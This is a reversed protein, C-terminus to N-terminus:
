VLRSFWWLLLLSLPFFALLMYSAPDIRGPVQYWGDLKEPLGQERRIQRQGQVSWPHFGDQRGDLLRSSLWAVPVSVLGGIAAYWPWAVDTWASLAWLALFGALIGIMLGRQTTDRSYFGLLFAALKAGVLFSGVASLTELVSGSSDLFLIAPVTILVGWIVTFVRSAVLYHEPTADPRVYPQYFDVTTVTAMSNLSSDLSSMAAAVAAAAILGMLGPVQMADVFALVITNGNDFSRGGFYQHLLLGIVFFLFFIFFATYGMMLYSKKADALTKATLTRQVMMQNVGYVVVHYISMAVIGTWITAVVSPDTTTPFPDLMGDARLSQLAPLLGGPLAQLLLLLVIGAGALLIVTQAVDTWIVAAIGGLTTYVLAVTAVIVIAPVVDLGTIYQLVLATTYLMIGSYAVNGFLFVASMLSRTARGFRRELYDFISACGITYFFPLFLTVVAVIALPYNVHIMMVSLGQQYSWAPGGLFTMAGVYTAVVSVGIAWWPTSRDGLYYQEATHVRRSLLVGMGLTAAMYVIVIGWDLAGFTSM